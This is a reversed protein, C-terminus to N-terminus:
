QASYDKIGWVEVIGDSSSIVILLQGDQSFMVIESNQAEGNLVRIREQKHVDWLEASASNGSCALVRGDHNFAIDQFGDGVTSVSGELEGNYAQWLRVTGTSDVSALIDDNPNFIAESVWEDHELTQLLTGDSLSWLRVDQNHLSSSLL